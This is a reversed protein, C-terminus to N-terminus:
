EFLIIHKYYIVNHNMYEVKIYIHRKSTNYSVHTNQNM